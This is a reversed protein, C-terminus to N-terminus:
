AALPDSASDDHWKDSLRLIPLETGCNHNSGAVEYFTMDSLEPSYFHLSLAFGRGDREDCTMTHVANSPLYVNEGAHLVTSDVRSCTSLTGVEAAQDHLGYDVHDIEGALVCVLANSAGHGHIPTTDPTHDSNHEGPRWGLLWVTCNEDQALKAFRRSGHERAQWADHLDHILQRHNEDGLFRAALARLTPEDLQRSM